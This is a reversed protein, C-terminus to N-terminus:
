LKLKVGLRAFPLRSSWIRRDRISRCNLCQLAVALRIAEALTAFIGVYGNAQRARGAGDSVAERQADNLVLKIIDDM